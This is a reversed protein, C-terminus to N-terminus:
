ASYRSQRLATQIDEKKLGYDLIADDVKFPLNVVTGGLAESLTRAEKRADPDLIIYVAGAHAVLEKIREAAYMKGPIGLVQIQPNDLTQYVVMAKKEGECVICYDGEGV